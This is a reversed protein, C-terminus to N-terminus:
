KGNTYSALYLINDARHPVVSKVVYKGDILWNKDIRRDDTYGVLTEAYISLDNSKTLTRDQVIIYIKSTGENRYEIKPYNYSDEVKQPSAVVYEQKRSEFM